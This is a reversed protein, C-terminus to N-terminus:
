TSSAADRGDDNNGSQQSPMWDVIRALAAFANRKGGAFSKTLGSSEIGAGAVIMQWKCRWKCRLRSPGVLLRASQEVGDITVKITSQQECATTSIRASHDRSASPHCTM